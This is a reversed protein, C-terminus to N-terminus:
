RAPEVADHTKPPGNVTWRDYPTKGGIAERMAKTVKHGKERYKSLSFSEGSVSPTVRIHIGARVIERVGKAADEAKESLPIRDRYRKRLAKLATEAEEAELKAKQWRVDADHIKRAQAATLKPQTM